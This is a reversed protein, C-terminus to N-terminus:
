NPSLPRPACGNKARRTQAPRTNSRSFNLSTGVYQRSRVKYRVRRGYQHFRYLDFEPTDFYPTRYLSQRRRDIELIRYSPHLAPLTASVQSLTLVFKTDTCDLLTAGAMESLAIPAFANLSEM